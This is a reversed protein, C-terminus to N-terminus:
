PATGGSDPRNEASAGLQLISITAAAVVPGLIIGLFGFAAVGGLMSIFVLLGNMASRGSVLAPRLLNDLGGILLVGLVIMLSGRVWSGIVLLWIAAPAWVLATGFLPLLACFGMVAGWFVPAHLGLIAFVIGGALGQAAAVAITAMAGTFVLTHTREMLEEKRQDEFPLIRRIVGGIARGDRLFFFLAFLTVFLEFVFISTAQLIIGAQGALFGTLQAAAGALRSRLEDAAPLPVHAHVWAWTARLRESDRMDGIAGQLASAAQTAEGLLAIALLVAPVVLLVAVALTTVAAALNPRCRRRLRRHAPEACLALVGAWVLPTVFPQVIRYALYGLLLLFAYFLLTNLRRRENDADTM